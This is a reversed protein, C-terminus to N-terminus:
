KADWAKKKKNKKKKSFLDPLGNFDKKMIIGLGQTNLSSKTFYRDNTQNYVKLALNGNPYLLYQIDFDGIFSPTAQTANDRYGFQGNILLRNNMMRGNVIGEYEANHWGENGTSINAGFNWNDNKIFQNLLTNIQTSLTGSLFSQMALSTADGQTENANNAGQNYFRGIGLLFVVQQNMEQQGNIVSRIMQQEDANVTPMELDFDVQPSAALGGINMLCNVRITNSSFSNGISLDSLSVGNVTYVAQLNLAAQYPNGGFVITGGRNFTFNKKIINQITVGYTGHDVTYTGFMNFVGKNHYTARITGEGNLTIYDATNADMLLRLTTEPTTNVLFSLYIDTTPTVPPSPKETPKAAEERPTSSDEWQIFEQSSIADPNAANFVFFSNKQPTVNCDITVEGPRGHIAVNGSAYVTGYFLQYGFNPFDYALLDDAEVFLDFTLHTLHQHHIGGSLYATHGEKDHLPLRGLEIEDPILVVTDRMMYYTTNLSSVTAEGDVILKGTLNINDLMGALRVDGYAHGTIHSLFSRTFSHMFDVYTSDAHIALDITNHTPSVYGDILTRIDPGDNAIAHIDIQKKEQNWDVKADLVGMRGEEFRFEDVRLNASAAFDDFLNTATAKGTAKGSFEVTHFDVLDLIYGVEVQNLDVSIKDTKHKSVIGDVIIHQKGHRVTFDDILLRDKHYIIDSPEIDWLSNNLLIRSPLIRVHAEPLNELNRYLQMITHLEGSTRAKTDQNDWILSATLNNNAANALLNLNMHKGDDSLKSISADCKLTDSPSYIHLSGDAYQTGNYAFSPMDADLFIDQMRDNVRANLMIPQRLTLDIGLFRKLWDTKSLMLRLSFNNDTNRTLSPLGPLTPLKAGVLNAISQALTAYDFSGKLDADAFDSKLTVYHIQDEYGSSLVLNDLHYAPHHETASVGFRSLRISGQADNLTNATFDADLNATFDADEWQDTLHLAAPVFRSVVGKVCIKKPKTSEDFLADTVEGQLKMAANPNDIAFNGTLAGDRYQGDLSINNYSYDKFDFKSITGSVEVDPKEKEHLQGRVALHTALQGMDENDLLRKLDIDETQLTGDFAQAANMTFFLDADGADAHLLSKLNINGQLDKDFTGNLQINGMRTLEKPVQQFTTTLYELSHETLNVQNMQLHWAPQQNWNELWGSINLSIDNEPTSLRLEPITVQQDTGNFSTLITFSRRINKLSPEFCSLECPTITLENIDGSFALTGPKLGHNDLRYGATLTDIQLHSQPLQLTLEQLTSCQRGTALRFTLRNVKLGSQEQFGLRKVNVNLSDDTLIKLNVHASIESVKLHSPNFHGETAPRDYQDYSISSHRIILSNIRLNLPTKTTDNSALSDIVFQFNPKATASRRYLRAHTGILQASSISIRGEALPILDIKATLRSARLMQKQQQDLIVIDDIIIRNLLGMDIRGVSVETGLAEGVAHAVKEGLYRQAAPLHSVGFLIANLAIVAWIVINIIRKFIRM